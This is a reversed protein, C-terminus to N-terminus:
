IPLINSLCPNSIGREHPSFYSLSKILKLLSINRHYQLNRGPCSKVNCDQSEVSSGLSECDRGGNSPSPNSCKRVRRRVGGLCSKSCTGWSSWPSYAGNVALDKASFRCGM